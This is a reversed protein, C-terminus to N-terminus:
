PFFDIPTIREVTITSGFPTTAWRQARTDALPWAPKTRSLSTSSRPPPAAAAGAAAFGFFAFFGGRGVLYRRGRAVEEEPRRGPRRCGRRGNHMFAGAAGTASAAGGEGGNGGPAKGPAGDTAWAFAFGMPAIVTVNAGHGSTRPFPIPKGGIAIVLGAAPENVNFDACDPAKEDGDAGFAVVISGDASRFAIGLGSKVPQVTPPIRKGPKKPDPKGMRFENAERGVADVSGTLITRRVRNRFAEFDPEAKTALLAKLLNLHPRAGETPGLRMANEVVPFVVPGLVLIARRAKEADAKSKPDDSVVKSIVELHKQVTARVEDTLADAEGPIKADARVARAGGALLLLSAALLVAPTRM